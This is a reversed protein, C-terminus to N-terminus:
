KHRIELSIVAPLYSFRKNRNTETANHRVPISAGYEENHMFNDYITNAHPQNYM